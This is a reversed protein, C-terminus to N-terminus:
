AIDAMLKVLAARSRVNLKRYIRTLHVDVTRPSVSLEKAIERTSKGLSAIGAIERERDTLTSLAPSAGNLHRKLARSPGLGQELSEADKYVRTAGCRKALEKALLLIPAAKEGAGSEILCQAAFTLLQTQDCLQGAAACRAAAEQYLEAAAPLDGKASLIHARATMAYAPQTGASVDDIAEARDACAMATALDDIALFATTLIEFCQLRPVVPLDPLELGGGGVNVILSICRQPQGAVLAASALALQASFSWRCTSPLAAAAREALNVAALDGREVTWITSWAELALAMGYVHKADMHLAIETAEAAVCRADEAAGLHRSTNSLGTLLTPLLYSQGTKRAITIGRRFHREADANWGVRVEAWGLITLYEPYHALEADSFGDFAPACEGLSAEAEPTSYVVAACLGHLALAGAEIVPDGYRRAVRIAQEAEEPSPCDGGLLGVLGHAISLAVAEIPPTPPMADLEATLLASAETYHGLFSEMLACFAVASARVSPPDPPLEALIEHLLDRSEQLRGAVGLARTLMLSLELRRGDDPRNSPLAQLAVQFWHAAIAPASAMADQAAKVLTRLEDPGSRDLSREIHIAQEAATAGRESLMALARRHAFVRWSPEANTYILSRLVPHRISYTPMTNGPRLLDRKTLAAVAAATQDLGMQAVTALSDLDFQDGLVAGAAAVASEDPSLSAIEGLLLAACQAPIEEQLSTGLRLQQGPKAHALALLYLPNGRSETHLDRLRHDHPRMGLIEASQSMSLADLEVREVVGLEVGHALTARLRTSSQRPRQAIVLLLPADLPWRALFDILEITGTDAWHLDDLILVMSTKACSRALLTRVAYYLHYREAEGPTGPADPGISPHVIMRRVMNAGAEPLEDLTDIMPRGGLIQTFPRFPVAQEFENCRGSLVMFGRRQAEEALDALLRTKGAGPDGVLEVIRGTRQNLAALLHHLESRRVSSSQEGIAQSRSM